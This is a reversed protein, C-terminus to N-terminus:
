VQGKASYEEFAAQIMDVDSYQPTWQLVEKTLEIDVLYDVDAIAYQERHLLTLGTKDLLALAMKVLTGPTKVLISRSGSREILQSLLTYVSPPNESGLNFEANPVGKEVACRIASVCDFVSIMQYCNAGNGILPVPLNKEIAFFLKALIGLRGPGIILRPRFVTINVGLKRFHDIVDESLKKSEGYEGLPRRPHSVQVPVQDPLGYVMDTSFYILRKCDNSVMHALVHRTGDVNVEQFFHQRGRHPVPGHYQRAALLYVIDGPELSLRQVSDPQTIDVALFDADSPVTPESVDCAVVDAGRSLLDKVLWTGTFGNAGIVIHRM